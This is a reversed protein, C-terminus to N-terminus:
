PRRSLTALYLKEIAKEPSTGRSLEAAKTAVTTLRAAAMLPSNMLRLAQPIGAEYETAKANETGQFFAAFQDRPGQPGGRPANAAKRMPNDKANVAGIVTTLSDFLQEGTLVKISQRSYVT